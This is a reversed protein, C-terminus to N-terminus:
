DDDAFRYRNPAYNGMLPALGIVSKRKDKGEVPTALVYPVWDPVNAEIKFNENLDETDLGKAAFVLMERETECDVYKLSYIQLKERLWPIASLGFGCYLSTVMLLLTERFEPSDHSLVVKRLHSLEEHIPAPDQVNISEAETLNPNQARFNSIVMASLSPNEAQFHFKLIASLILIAEMPLLLNGPLGSVNSDEPYLQNQISLPTQTITDSNSNEKGLLDFLQEPDKTWRAFQTWCLLTMSHDAWWMADSLLSIFREISDTIQVPQLYWHCEASPKLSSSSGDSVHMLKCLDGLCMPEPVDNSPQISSEADVNLGQLIGDTIKSYIRFNNQVQLDATANYLGQLQFM